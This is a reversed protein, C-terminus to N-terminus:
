YHTSLSIAIIRGCSSTTTELYTLADRNTVHNMWVEVWGKTEGSNGHIWHTCMSCLWVFISVCLVKLGGLIVVWLMHTSRSNFCGLCRHIGFHCYVFMEMGRATNSMNVESITTNPILLVPFHSTTSTFNEFSPNSGEGFLNQLLSYQNEVIQPYWSLVPTQLLLFGLHSSWFAPRMNCM